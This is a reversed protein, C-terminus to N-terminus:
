GPLALHKAYQVMMPTENLAPFRLDYNRYFSTAMDIVASHLESGRLPTQLPVKLAKTYASPLRDRM